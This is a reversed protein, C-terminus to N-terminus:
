SLFHSTSKLVPFVLSLEGNSQELFKTAISTFTSLDTRSSFENKLISSSEKGELNIQSEQTTEIALVAMLFVSVKIREIFNREGWTARIETFRGHWRAHFVAIMDPGTHLTYNKLLTTATPSDQYWQFVDIFKSWYIILVSSHLFFMFISLHLLISIPYSLILFVEHICLLKKKITM